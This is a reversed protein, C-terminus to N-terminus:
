AVATLPRADQPPRPAFPIPAAADDEADDPTTLPHIMQIRDLRFSKWGRRLTCYCWATIHSDKTLTVSSPWLARATLEGRADLYSVVVAGADRMAEMVLSLTRAPVIGGNCRYYLAEAVPLDRLPTEQNVTAPFRTGSRALVTRLPLHRITSQHRM